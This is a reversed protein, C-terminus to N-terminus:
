LRALNTMSRRAWETREEERVSQVRAALARLQDRSKQLAEEARKFDTIDRDLASPREMPSHWRQGLVHRDGAWRKVRTRFDDWDGNSSFVFNLIEQRYSPDPYLEAFVDLDQRLVEELTWGLTREWERNALKIKGDPGVFGIMASVGDFIKQLIEKQRRLDDEARKRDEINMSTGYWKVINGREDRLPVTRILFWRYEGDAQRLRMEDEFSEGAAMNTAWKEGAKQLDEPHMARTPEEIEEEFTLGAYDLWRQNVFDVVGDPRVTWAMTPIADIVLRLIEDSHRPTQEARQQVSRM